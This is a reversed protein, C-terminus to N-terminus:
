HEQQPGPGARAPSVECARALASASAICAISEDNGSEHPTRRPSESVRVGHKSELFAPGFHRV